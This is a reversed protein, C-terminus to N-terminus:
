KFLQRCLLHQFLTAYPTFDPLAITHLSTSVQPQLPVSPWPLSHSRLAQGPPPTSSSPTTLTSLAPSGAAPVQGGPHRQKGEQQLAGSPRTFRVHSQHGRGM